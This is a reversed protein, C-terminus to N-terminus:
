VKAEGKIVSRQSESKQLFTFYFVKPSFSKTERQSSRKQIEKRPKIDTHIDCNTSIAKQYM